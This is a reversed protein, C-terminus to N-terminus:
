ITRSCKDGSSDNINLMEPLNEEMKNEKIRTYTLRIINLQKKELWTFDKEKAQMKLCFLRTCGLHKM